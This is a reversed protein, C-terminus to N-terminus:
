FDGVVADFHGGDAHKGVAEGLRSASDPTIGHRSSLAATASRSRCLMPSRTRNPPAFTLRTSCPRVTATDQSCTSFMPAGTTVTLLEGGKSPYLSAWLPPLVRNLYAVASARGVPNPVGQWVKLYKDMATSGLLRFYGPSFGAQVCALALSLQQPNLRSPQTDGVATRQHTQM